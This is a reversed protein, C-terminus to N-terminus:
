LVGFVAEELEGLLFERVLERRQEGVQLRSPLHLHWEWPVYAFRGGYAHALVLNAVDTEEPDGLVLASPVVAQDHNPLNRGLFEQESADLELLDYDPLILLLDCRRWRCGFLLRILDASKSLDLRVADGRIIVWDGEDCVVPM